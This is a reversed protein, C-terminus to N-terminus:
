APTTGVGHLLTDIVRSAIRDPTETGGTRDSVAAEHVLAYFVTLVWDLDAGPTILGAERCRTLLGVALERMRAQSEAVVPDDAPALTRAYELGVKVEIVNRTARHLAQEAPLVGIQADELAAVIRCTAWRSLAILLDGRTPFRRYITARSAGAAQGIEELTAAPNVRLLRDAAHLVEVGKVYADARVRVGFVREALEKDAVDM